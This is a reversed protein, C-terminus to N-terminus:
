NRGQLATRLKKAAKKIQFKVQLKAQRGMRWVGSARVQAVLSDKYARWRPYWRAFWAFQMLAPETLQFLRAVLATGLLKASILVTTGWLMQGRGLFYLALLKIPLLAVAPLLLVLLALWPPLAAIKQECWAWLPIRDSLDLYAATDGRQAAAEDCAMKWFWGPVGTGASQYSEGGRALDRAASSLELGHKEAQAQAHEHQALLVLMRMHVLWEHVRVPMHMVLMM